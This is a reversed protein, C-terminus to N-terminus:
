CSQVGRGREGKEMNRIYLERDQQIKYIIKTKLLETYENVLDDMSIVYHVCINYFKM